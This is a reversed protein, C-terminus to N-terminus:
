DVHGGVHGEVLGYLTLLGIARDVEQILNLLAYSRVEGPLRLEREGWVLCVKLDMPQASHGQLLLVKMLGNFDEQLILNLHKIDLM